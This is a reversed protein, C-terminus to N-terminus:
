SINTHPYLIGARCGLKLCNQLTMEADSNETSQSLGGILSCYLEVEAATCVHKKGKRKMPTSGM